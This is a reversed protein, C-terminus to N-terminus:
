NHRTRSPQTFFSDVRLISAQNSKTVKEYENIATGGKKKRNTKHPIRCILNRFYTIYLIRVIKIQKYDDNMEPLLSVKVHSNNM